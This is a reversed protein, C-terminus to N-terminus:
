FRGWVGLGRQNGWKSVNGSLSHSEKGGLELGTAGRKVSDTREKVIHPGAM